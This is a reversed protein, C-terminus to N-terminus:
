LLIMIKNKSFTTSILGSFTDVSGATELADKLPFASINNRSLMILFNDHFLQPHLGYNVNIVQLSENQM